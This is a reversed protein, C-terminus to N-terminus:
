TPGNVGGPSAAGSRGRERVAGLRQLEIERIGPRRQSGDGSDRPPNENYRDSARDGLRTWRNFAASPRSARGPVAEEGIGGPAPLFRNVLSLVRATAGPFLGHVAGGLVAAPTLVLDAQGRQAADAIQRAARAASMSVLPLSAGLSFWAYEERHRGKFLANVHSGTRMMGPCVTTVSIGDRALEARLGESLATLAAKSTSYPLLHPVAIRGGISAINVIRGSRRARMSSLVARTAVLPARVHLAIATDFDELTAHAEPGVTIIGANNVLVDIPGLEREVRTVLVGIQECDQLDCPLALVPAESKVRRELLTRARELEATDRACIAVRAGRSRYEEALALGLGRSGGTILVVGPSDARAGRRRLAAATLCALGLAPFLIQSATWLPSRDSRPM